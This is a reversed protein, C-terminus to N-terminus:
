LFKAKGMEQLLIRIAAPINNVYQDAINILFINARKEFMKFFKAHGGSLRCRLEHIFSFRAVWDDDYMGARCNSTESITPDNPEEWLCSRNEFLPRNNQPARGSQHEGCGYSVSGDSVQM